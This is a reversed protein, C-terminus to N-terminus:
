HEFLINQNAALFAAADAGAEIKGLAVSCYGRQQERFQHGPVAFRKALQEAAQMSFKAFIMVAADIEIYLGALFFLGNRMEGVTLQFLEEVPRDTAPFVHVADFDIETFDAPHHNARGTRFIKQADVGFRGLRFGRAANKGGYAFDHVIKLDPKLGPAFHFGDIEVFLEAAEGVVAIRAEDAFDIIAGHLSDLQLTLEDPVMMVRLIFQKQHDFAGQAHFEAVVFSDDAFALEDDDRLADLM